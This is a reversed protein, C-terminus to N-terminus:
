MREAFIRKPELNEENPSAHCLGLFLGSNDYVSYLINQKIHLGTYALTSLPLKVGNLVQTAHRSSLYLKPLYDFATEVPKILSYDSIQVSNEIQEFGVCENISYGCAETRRLNTLVAGCGLTKGIDHCLTRIYTGKSCMVDITYSHLEEDHALFNIFPINIPRAERKVEVGKRALDYLRKGNVKVASYMPPMQMTDGVFKETVEAVDKYGVNVVSTKTINGTIDQTDTVTGLRFTATYRKQHDELFPIARTAKGIFVPLVGTAMPDLTGAHGMKKTKLIGRLKGIVDFSTFNQPKDVLLIGNPVGM